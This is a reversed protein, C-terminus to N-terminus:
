CGLKRTDFCVQECFYFHKLKRPFIYLFLIQVQKVDDDGFVDNSNESDNSERLLLADDLKTSTYLM